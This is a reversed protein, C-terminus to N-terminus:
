MFNVGKYAKGHFITVSVNVRQAELCIDKLHQLSETTEVVM